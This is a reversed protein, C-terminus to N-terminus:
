RPTDQSGDAAEVAGEAAAGGVVEAGGEDPAQVATETAEIPHQKDGVRHWKLLEDELPHTTGCIVLSHLPEGFDVDLLESLSNVGGFDIAVFFFGSLAFICWDSAFLLPIPAYSVRLHHFPMRPLSTVCERGAFVVWAVSQLALGFGFRLPGVAVYPLVRLGELGSRTVEGQERVKKETRETSTQLCIGRCSVGSM